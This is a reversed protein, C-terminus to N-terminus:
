VVSKRDRSYVFYTGEPDLDLPEVEDETYFEDLINRGTVTETSAGPKTEDTDADFHNARHRGEKEVVEDKTEGTIEEECYPCVTKWEGKRKQKAEPM